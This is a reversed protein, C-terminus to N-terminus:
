PDWRLDSVYINKGNPVNTNLSVKITLVDGVRYNQGNFEAQVTTWALNTSAPIDARTEDWYRNASPDVAIFYVQSWSEPTFDTKIDLSIKRSDVLEQDAM